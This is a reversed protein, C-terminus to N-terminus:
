VNKLLHNLFSTFPTKQTPVLKPLWNLNLREEGVRDELECINTGYNLKQAHLPVIKPLECKPVM